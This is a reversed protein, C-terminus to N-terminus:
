NNGVKRILDAIEYSDKIAQQDKKSLTIDKLGSGGTFRVKIIADGSEAIAKIIGNDRGNTYLIKEWVSGSGNNELNNPDSISINETEYVTDGIKVQVRTHFIWDEGFYNSELCLNGDSGVTVSLYNRNYSNDTTQNKHIYLGDKEFEDYDYNFNRKLIELREKYAKLTAPDLPASHQLIKNESLTQNRLSITKRIIPVLIFIFLIIIIIYYKKLFNKM